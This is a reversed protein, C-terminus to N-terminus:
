AEPERAAPAAPASRGITPLVFDQILSKADRVM